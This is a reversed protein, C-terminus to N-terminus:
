FAGLREDREGLSQICIGLPKQVDGHAHYVQECHNSSSPTTCSLSISCLVFYFHFIKCNLGLLYIAKRQISPFICLSILFSICDFYATHNLNFSFNLALICNLWLMLMIYGHGCQLTCCVWFIVQKGRTNELTLKLAENENHRM